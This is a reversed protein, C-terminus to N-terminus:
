RQMDDLSIQHELQMPWCSTDHDDFAEGSYPQVPSPFLGSIFIKCVDCIKKSSFAASQRKNILSTRTANDVHLYMTIYMSYLTSTTANDGQAGRGGAAYFKM